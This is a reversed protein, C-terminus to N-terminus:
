TVEDFVLADIYYGPLEVEFPGGSPITASLSNFALTFRLDHNGPALFIVQTGLDVLDRTVRPDIEITSRAVGDISMIAQWRPATAISMFTPNPLGADVLIDFDLDDPAISLSGNGQAKATAEVSSANVAAVLGRAITAIDDDRRKESWGISGNNGDPAVALVNEYKVSTDDIFERIIFKGDNAGTAAGTVKLQRGVSDPSMNTLGSITVLTGDFVDISAVVGTQGVIALGTLDAVYAISVPAQNPITIDFGYTDSSAGVRALAPYTAPGRVRARFRFVKTVDFDASQEWEILDLTNCKVIVGPEDSGLCLAWDGDPPEFNDPQIRGGDGTPHGLEFISLAM